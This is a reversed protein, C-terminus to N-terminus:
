CRGVKENAMPNDVIFFQGNHDTFLSASGLHNSHYFQAEADAFVSAVRQSGASVHMIGVGGRTEYLEGNIL